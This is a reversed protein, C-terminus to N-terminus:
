RAAGKEERGTSSAELTTSASVVSSADDVPLCAALVAGRGGGAVTGGPVGPDARPRLRTPPRLACSSGTARRGTSGSWASCRHHPRPLGNLALMGAGRVLSAILITLEFTVPVFMPWSHLPRGAVNLPYDVAAMWVADPLRRRLRARRRGAVILAAPEGGAWRRRWTRVPFPSYADMRRYGADRAARAAEVLATPTEFEALLGYLRV